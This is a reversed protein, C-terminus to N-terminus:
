AVRDGILELQNPCDRATVYRERRIDPETV